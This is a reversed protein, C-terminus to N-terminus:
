DGTWHRSTCGAPRSTFILALVGSAPRPMSIMTLSVPV